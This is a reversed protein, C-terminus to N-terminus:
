VRYVIGTIGVMVMGLSRVVREKAMVRVQNLVKLHSSVTVDVRSALNVLVQLYGDMGAGDM